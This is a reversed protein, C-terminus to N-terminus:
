DGESEDKLHELYVPDEEVSKQSKKILEAMKELAQTQKERFQDAQEKSATEESLNGASIGQDMQVKPTMNLDALTMHNRTLFEFLPKLLPHAKVEEITIKEGTEKDKYEALRFDGDKSFSYAPNRLAVGDAMVAMLMDDFIASLSAQNVAHIGQLMEPDGTEIAILHKMYLETRKTCAVQEACYDFDVSCSNCHPYKGPKAPFYLATKAYAGSKLANFRTIATNEKTPYGELNKASSAKGEATKPGTAKVNGCLQAVQWAVQEVEKKCKPCTAFYRYPHARAPEDESREPIADFTHECSKCRFVLEREDIQKLKRAITDM